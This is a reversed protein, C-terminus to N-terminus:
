YTNEALYSCFLDSMIVHVIENYPFKWVNGYTSRLLPSITISQPIITSIVVM